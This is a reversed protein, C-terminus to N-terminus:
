VCVVHCLLYIHEGALKARKAAIQNAVEQAKRAAAQQLKKQQEQHQRQKEHKQRLLEHRRLQEAIRKQRVEKEAQAAALQQARLQAQQQLRADELRQAAEEQQIQARRREYLDCFQRLLLMSLRSQHLWTASAKMGGNSTPTFSEEPDEDGDLNEEAAFSALLTNAASKSARQSRPTGKPTSASDIQSRSHHAHGSGAHKVSVMLLYESSLGQVDLDRRAAIEKTITTGDARTTIQMPPGRASRNLLSEWRLSAYLMRLQLAITNLSTASQTHYLWVHSFTPRPSVLPLLSSGVSNVGKSAVFEGVEMQGARRALRRLQQRSLCSFVTQSSGSRRWRLSTDAMRQRLVGPSLLRTTPTSPSLLNVPRAQSRSPPRTTRSRPTSTLEVTAATTSSTSPLGTLLSSSQSSSPLPQIHSNPKLQKSDHMRQIASSIVKSHAAVVSDPLTSSSSSTSTSASSLSAASVLSVVSSDTSAHKSSTTVFVEDSDTSEKSAPLASTINAVTSSSDKSLDDQEDNEAQVDAHSASSTAPVAVRSAAAVNSLVDLLSPALSVSSDTVTISTTVAQGADAAVCASSTSTSIAPSSVSQQSTVCESSPPCVANSVNDFSSVVAGSLSSSTVPVPHTSSSALTDAQVNGCVTAASITTDVLSTSALSLDSAESVVPETDMAVPLPSNGKTESLPDGVAHSQILVSGILSSSALVHSETGILSSSALVHSETGLPSNRSTVADSSHSGTVMPVPSITSGSPSEQGCVTGADSVDMPVEGSDWVCVSDTVAVTTPQGADQQILPSQSTVTDALSDAVRPSQPPLSPLASSDSTGTTSSMDPLPLEASPGSHSSAAVSPLPDGGGSSDSSTIALMPPLEESSRVAMSHEPNTSSLTVSSHDPESLTPLNREALSCLASDDVQQDDDDGPLSATAVIVDDSGAPVSCDALDVVSSVVPQSPLAEIRGIDSTTSSSPSARSPSSGTNSPSPLQSPSVAEGSGRPSCALISEVPPLAASGASQVNCGPQSMSSVSVDVAAPLTSLSGPSHAVSSLSSQDATATSSDNVAASLRDAADLMEDSPMLQDMPLSDLGVLLSDDLVNLNNATAFDSLNVTSETTTASSRRSGGTLSPTAVGSSKHSQQSNAAPSLGSSELDSLTIDSQTSLTGNALANSIHQELSVNLDGIEDARLFTSMKGSVTALKSDGGTSLSLFPAQLLDAPITGDLSANSRNALHAVSDALMSPDTDLCMSMDSLSSLHNGASVAAHQLPALDSSFSPLCTRSPQSVSVALSSSGTPMSSAPTIDAVSASAEVVSQVPVSTLSDSVASSNSHAPSQMTSPISLPTGPASAESALTNVASSVSVEGALLSVASSVSVEGALLSVASSVSVEGALLSVASSVSTKSAATNVPSSVSVSTSQPPKSETSASVAVDTGDNSSSSIAPTASEETVDTSHVSRVTMTAASSIANATAPIVPGPNSTSTSSLALNDAPTLTSNATGTSTSLSVPITVGDQVSTLQMAPAATENGCSSIHPDKESLAPPAEAKVPSSPSMSLSPVAQNVPPTESTTSLAATTDSTSVPQSPSPLTAVTSAGSCVGGNGGGRSACYSAIVATDAITSAAPRVSGDANCPISCNTPAISVPNSKSSVLTGAGTNTGSISQAKTIESSVAQPAKFSHFSHLVLGKPLSPMAPPSIADSASSSTSTSPRLLTLSSPLRTNLSTLRTTKSLSSTEIRPTLTMPSLVPSVAPSQRPTTTLSAGRSGTSLSPTRELAATSMALPGGSSSRDLILPRIPRHLTATVSSVSTSRGDTTKGPANSLSLVADVEAKPKLYIVNYHKKGAQRLRAGDTQTSLFKLGREVATQLRKAKAKRLSISKLTTAARVRRRTSVFQWGGGFVRYEEGRQKWVHHRLPISSYNVVEKKNAFATGEAEAREKLSGGGGLSGGNRKATAELVDWEQQQRRRLSICGIAKQWPERFSTARLSRLLHCLVVSFEHPRHCLEVARLWHPRRKYWLSSKAVFPLSAEMHLLSSRLTAAMARKGGTMAGSWTMNQSSFQGFRAKRHETDEQHVLKGLAQKSLAYINSYGRFHGECGLQFMAPVRGPLSMPSSSSEVLNKTSNDPTSSTGTMSTTEMDPVLSDPVLSNRDPHDVAPLQFSLSGADGRDSGVAAPAAADPVMVAESAPSVSQAARESFPQPNSLPGANTTCFMVPGNTISQSEGDCSSPVASDATPDASKSTVTFSEADSAGSTTAQSDASASSAASAASAASDAPAPVPPPTAVGPVVSTAAAASPPPASQAPPREELTAQNSTCQAETSTPQVVDVDRHSISHSSSPKGLAAPTALIAPTECTASSSLPSESRITHVKAPMEIHNVAPVLRAASIWGATVAMDNIIDDFAEVLLDAMNPDDNDRLCQILEELHEKQSYYAM